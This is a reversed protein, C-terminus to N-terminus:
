TKQVAIRIAMEDSHYFETKETESVESYNVLFYRVLEDTDVKL